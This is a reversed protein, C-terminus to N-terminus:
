PIEQIAGRARRRSRAKLVSQYLQNLQTQPTRSRSLLDEPHIPESLRKWFECGECDILVPHNFPDEELELGKNKISRDEYWFDFRNAGDATRVWATLKRERCAPCTLESNKM